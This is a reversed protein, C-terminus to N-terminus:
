PAYDSIAGFKLRDHPTLVLNSPEGTPGLPRPLIVNGYCVVYPTLTQALPSDDTAAEHAVQVEERLALFSKVRSQEYLSLFGYDISRGDFDALIAESKGIHEQILSELKWDSGHLLQIFIRTALYRVARSEHKFLTQMLAASTLPGFNRSDFSILRWVVLLSQLLIEGDQEMANQDLRLPPLRLSPSNTTQEPTSSAYEIFTSLYPAFPLIRALASYIRIRQQGNGPNLIWRACIDPFVHEFHAFIRETLPPCLAAEAVADLLKTSSQDQIIALIEAPLHELVTADALLSRRQRSVDIMAM